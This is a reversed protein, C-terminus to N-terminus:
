DIMEEKEDKVTGAVLEGLEQPTHNRYDSILRGELDSFRSQAAELDREVCLALVAWFGDGIPTRLLFPERDTELIKELGSDQDQDQPFADPQQVTTEETAGPQHETPDFTILGNNSDASEVKVKLSFDLEPPNSTSSMITPTMEPSSLFVTSSLVPNSYPLVQVADYIHSQPRIITTTPMNSVSDSTGMSPPAGKDALTTSM